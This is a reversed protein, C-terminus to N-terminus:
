FGDLINAPGTLDMRWCGVVPFVAGAAPGARPRCVSVTHLSKRVPVIKATYLLFFVDSYFDNM